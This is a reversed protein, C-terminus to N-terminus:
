NYIMWKYTWRKIIEASVSEEEKRINVIKCIFLSDARRCGKEELEAESVEERM